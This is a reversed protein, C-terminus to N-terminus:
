PLRAIRERIPQKAQLRQFYLIIIVLILCKRM